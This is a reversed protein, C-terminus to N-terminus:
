IERTRPTIGILEAGHIDLLRVAEAPGSVAYFRYRGGFAKRAAVAEFRRLTYPLCDESPAFVTVPTKSAIAMGLEVHCSTPHTLERLQVYVFAEAEILATLNRATALDPAEFQAATIISEGPWYVPEAIRCLAEHIATTGSRDEEYSASDLAAMPASLFVRTSRPVVITVGREAFLRTAREAYEGRLLAKGTCWRSVQGADVCLLQALGAQTM